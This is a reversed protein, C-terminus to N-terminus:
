NHKYTTTNIKEYIIQILALALAVFIWFFRIFAGHLFIAAFLYGILAVQVASIHYSWEQYYETHRLNSKINSLGRFLAVVIGMFTILGFLGTEALIEIYLSHAEREEIRTEIGVIQAYKQYNVAYNGAGIGLLPHETFMTIGTLIESTRGRFSEDQYINSESGSSFVTITQFRSIYSAPLFPLGLAGVLLISAIVMPNTRVFFFLIFFVTVFFGLYGGRSYTNLLEIFMIIFVSLFALKTRASTRLFGFIAFPMISILIQGWMNPENIPGGVREYENVQSLGFFTESYNGSAVQYIGLLSIFTTIAIMVIVTLNWEEMNRICFLICYMIVLDKVLDVIREFALDKDVAILYSAAVAFVYLIVFIEIRKTKPRDVPIQGVYYNRVLISVFVIVVLPKIVGPLGNETLYASINLFVAIILINAGLSPYIIIMMVVVIGILGLLAFTGASESPNSVATAILASLLIALLIYPYDKKLVM